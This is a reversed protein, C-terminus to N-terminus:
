IDIVIFLGYKVSLYIYLSLHDIITCAMSYLIFYQCSYYKAFYHLHILYQSIDCTHM